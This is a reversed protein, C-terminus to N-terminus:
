PADAATPSSRRLYAGRVVEREANQIQIISYRPLVQIIRVQARQRTVQTNKADILEVLSWRQEPTVGHEAGQDMIAISNHAGMMRTNTAPLFGLLRAQTSPTSPTSFVAPATSQSPTVQLCMRPIAQDNRDVEEAAQVIRLPAILERTASHETPQNIPQEVSLRTDWRAKAILRVFRGLTNGNMDNIPEGARVLVYPERQAWREADAVSSHWRILVSDDKAGLFREADAPTLTLSRAGKDSAGQPEFWWQGNADDSGHAQVISPQLQFVETCTSAATSTAMTEAHASFAGVTFLIASIRQGADPKSLATTFYASLNMTHPNTLSEDPLRADSPGGQYCVSCICPPRM